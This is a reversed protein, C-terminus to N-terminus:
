ATKRFSVELVTGFASAIKELTELTANCRDPDEWKQYTATAVGVAEAAQQMTMMRLKREKRIQMATLTRLPLTVWEWGEERPLTRDPIVDQGSEWRDQVHLRILDVAM